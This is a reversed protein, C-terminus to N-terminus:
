EGPSGYFHQKEEDARYFSAARYDRNRMCNDMRMGDRGTIRMNTSATFAWTAICSSSSIMATKTLCHVSLHEPYVPGVLM